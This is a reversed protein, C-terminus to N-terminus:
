TREDQPWGSEWYTTGLSGEDRTWAPRTVSTSFVTRTTPVALDGSVAAGKAPAIPVVAWVDVETVSPDAAFARYLMEAVDAAVAPRDVPEHFKVGSLMIGAVTAAGAALVRVKLVQEPFDGDLLAVAVREAVGPANGAIRERAVARVESAPLAASPPAVARLVTALLADGRGRVVRYRPLAYPDRTLGSLTLVFGNTTVAYRFGDERVISEVRADYRGAPYAFGDVTQGTLDRLAVRSRRVEADAISPSVRTLDVHSVTHAGIEMGEGALAVIQARTLHGPTDIYKTSVFFTGVDGYRRLLPAAVTAADEYGDDFTLAVECGRQRGSRLDEVLHGLGVAECGRSELEQLQTAFETPTVTLARGYPGPAAATSVHHYMFIAAVAASIM